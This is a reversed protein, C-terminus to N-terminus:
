QKETIKKNKKCVLQNGFNLNVESYAEWGKIPIVKQYFGDLKTFKLEINEPAGFLIDCTGVRPTLHIMGKSDIYIQEIMASWVRNKDLFQAIEYIGAIWKDNLDGAGRYGPEIALPIEGGVIPVLSSFSKILPFIYATDDMYFGGNLSEIRIIPRRQEIKVVVRGNITYCVQAEKIATRSNLMEELQHLNTAKVKSEGINVGHNDLLNLIENKSVFQNLASDLINVDVRNCVIKKSEKAVLETSLYFYAILVSSILLYGIFILIKKFM